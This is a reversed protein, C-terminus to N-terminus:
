RGEKIDCSKLILSKLDYTIQIKKNDRLSRKVCKLNDKESYYVGAKGYLSLRYMKEADDWKLREVLVDESTLAVNAFLPFQQLLLLVIILRIM